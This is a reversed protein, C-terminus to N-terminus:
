LTYKKGVSLKKKIAEVDKENEALVKLWFDFETKSIEKLIGNADGAYYVASEPPVKLLKVYFIRHEIELRSSCGEKEGAAYDVEYDM